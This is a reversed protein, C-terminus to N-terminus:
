RTRAIPFRGLDLPLSPDIADRIQEAISRICDAQGSGLNFVGAIGPTVAALYIAEAADEVYLYDWRQEGATLAHTKGDLLHCILQPIMWDPNDRPGFASFLRLWVLRLPSEYTLQRAWGLVHV